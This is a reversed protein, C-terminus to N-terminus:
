RNAKWSEYEERIQSTSHTREVRYVDFPNKGEKQLEFLKERRLGEQESLKAEMEHLELDKLEENVM